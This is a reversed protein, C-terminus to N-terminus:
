EPQNPDFEQLRREGENVAEALIGISKELAEDLMHNIEAAEPQDTQIQERFPRMGDNNAEVGRRTIQKRYDELTKLASSSITVTYKAQSYVLQKRSIAEAAEAIAEQGEEKIKDVLAKYDKNTIGELLGSKLLEERLDDKFSPMCVKYLISIPIKKVIDERGKCCAYVHMYNVATEYKIGLTNEVYETFGEGNDQCVRKILTLIEGQRVIVVQSIEQHIIFARQLYSLKQETTMAGFQFRTEDDWKSAENYLDKLNEKDM